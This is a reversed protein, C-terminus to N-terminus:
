KNMKLAIDRRSPLIAFAMALLCAISISRLPYDVASHLAIVTITSAAFYCGARTTRDFRVDLGARIRFVVFALAGILLAIGFVGAELMWELYDNHVRNPFFRDVSNLQEGAILMMSGSGVGSGLLDTQGIQYIADEWMAIRGGDNLMFRDFTRELMPISTANLVIIAGVGISGLLIFGWRVRIRAPLLVVAFVTIPLLLLTGTRSGTLVVSVALLLAVSVAGVRNLTTDFRERWAWSLTALAALGILYVDAAANRNAQFGVAYGDHTPYLGGIAGGSGLQLAGLFAALVAIIILPVLLALRSSPTLLRVALLLTLPPILSLLSALTRDPAFSFSMWHDALGGAQLSAVLSDRGPLSMWIQPPLPLIQILPIGILAACLVALAPDNQPCAAPLDFKRPFLLLTVILALASLQVVIEPMPSPSGGGGALVAIVLFASVLRYLHPSVRHNASRSQPILEM